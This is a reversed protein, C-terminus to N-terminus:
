YYIVETDEDSDGSSIPSSDKIANGSAKLVGELHHSRIVNELSHLRAEFGSLRQRYKRNSKKLAANEQTLKSMEKQMYNKENKKRDRNIKANIANQRCREMEPNNFEEMEYLKSKKNSSNSNKHLQQQKKNVKQAMKAEEPDEDSEDEESSEDFHKRPKRSRKSSTVVRGQKVERVIKEAKKIVVKQKPKEITKEINQSNSLQSYSHISMVDEVSNTVPGEMPEEKLEFAPQDDSMDIYEISHTAELDVEANDLSTFTPLEEMATASLMPNMDFNILTYKNADEMNPFLNLEEDSILEASDNWIAEFDAQQFNDVEEFLPSLAAFHDM